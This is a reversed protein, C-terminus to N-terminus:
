VMNKVYAILIVSVKVYVVKKNRKVINKKVIVINQVFNQVDM